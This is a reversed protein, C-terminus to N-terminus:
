LLPRKKNSNNGFTFERSGCENGSTPSTHQRDLRWGGIDSSEVGGSYTYTLRATETRLACISAQLRAIGSRECNLRLRFMTLRMRAAVLFSSSYIRLGARSHM